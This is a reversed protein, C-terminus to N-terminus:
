SLHHNSRRGYYTTQKSLLINTKQQLLAFSRDHDYDYITTVDIELLITIIITSHGVRDFALKLIPYFLLLSKLSLLPYASTINNTDRIREM